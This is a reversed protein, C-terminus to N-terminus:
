NPGTAKIFERVEVNYVVTEVTFVAWPTGEDFWTIAAVRPLMNGNKVNWELVENLWLLKEGGEADRFRMSEMLRLLGTEPDFRVVFHQNDDNFPVILIATEDDVTEWRVRPDTILISPLWMSESWLGLNAGQDVQAGEFIGFPLDLRSKGDLYHENVRMLPLGFFTAEISHRYGLGATYTFRFRGPMSIGNVRMTAQGSIVATEILPMQEAYIKRFFREVPAPLGEPLPLTEMVPTEGLTDPFSKPRIKLGLWGLTVLAALISIVIIFFKM